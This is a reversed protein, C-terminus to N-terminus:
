DHAVHRSQRSPSDPAILDIADYAVGPSLFGDGHKGSVVWIALENDGAVLASKPIPYLFQTNRGRYSGVTLSRTASQQSLAPTPSQWGNVSIAPRGNAFATTIGIRLQLPQIQTPRLSFHIVLPNNIQQWQYAPWKQNLQPQGIVLPPVAWAALRTDSPHMFTVSDGNLFEQPTGDWHGIRWLAPVQNPDDWTAQRTLHTVTGAVVNVTSQWVALENRYIVLQYTGPRMAPSRATGTHANIPAWYQASSNAFGVTYPVHRALGHLSSLVVHGRQNAALYGPLGMREYWTTQLPMPAPGDTFVLAYDNLVNLRYSETQGEQYNILYTLEQDNNTGQVLLSRYFPGGSGGEQNGRVFWVGVQPGSAGFYTWQSLPMNSYHKSVTSGDAKAFVDRAEIVRDADDHSACPPGNPLRDRRLRAIFRVLGITPERSFLTAMFITAKGREVLYVHTLNDANVTIKIHDDDIQTGTVTVQAQKDYLDAFGSNIHSGRLPDQYEIGHYVLSVIDGMGRSGRGVTQPVRRVKFVLGAGTDVTYTQPDEQLSFSAAQTVTPRVNASSSPAPLPQGCQKPSAAMATGLCSWLWLAALWPGLSALWTLLASARPNAFVPRTM